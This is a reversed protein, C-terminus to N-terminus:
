KGDKKEEPAKIAAKLILKKLIIVFVIVIIAFIIIQPIHIVIWVIIEVFGDGVSHLSDVFGEGMRALPGKEEVPTYKTVERIDLYVTSYNVKNDFTRLKAETSELEYRVESLRSEVTILDEVTEAQELIKLLREEETKLAKKRSETDVYSLTVDEVNRSKSTINTKDLATDVFEDLKAAPIRITLSANRNNSRGSYSSGNYVDSSEIYGGLEKVRNEVIALTSDLEETEASINLTTILKRSTDVVETGSEAVDEMAEEDYSDMSKQEYFAGDAAPAEVASETAATYMGKDSSGCGTFLSGVALVCALGLMGVRKRM